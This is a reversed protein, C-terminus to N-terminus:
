LSGGPADKMSFSFSEVELKQALEVFSVVEQWPARPAISLVVALNPHRSIMARIEREASQREMPEGQYLLVGQESLDFRLLDDKLILRASNKQPLTMLFGKNVNFCAIVIFYILLLFAIGSAWGSV